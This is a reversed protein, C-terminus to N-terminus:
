TRSCATRGPDGGRMVQMWMQYGVERRRGSAGGMAVIEADQIQRRPRGAIITLSLKSRVRGLLRCRISPAHVRDLMPTGGFLRTCSSTRLSPTCSGSRARGSQGADTGAGPDFAWGADEHLQKRAKELAHMQNPHVQYQRALDATTAEEGRLGGGLKM